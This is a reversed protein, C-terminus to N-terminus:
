ATRANSRRVNLVCVCVTVCDCSSCIVFRHWLLACASCTACCCQCRALLLQRRCAWPGRCMWPREALQQAAAARVAGNWTPVVLLILRAGVISM